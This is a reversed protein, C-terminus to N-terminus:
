SRMARRAPSSSSNAAATRSDPDSGEPLGTPTVSEPAPSIATPANARAPGPCEPTRPPDPGPVAAEQSSTFPM